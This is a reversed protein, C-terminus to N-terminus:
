KQGVPIFSTVGFASEQKNERERQNKENKVESQFYFEFNRDSRRHHYGVIVTYIVWVLLWILSHERKYRQSIKM